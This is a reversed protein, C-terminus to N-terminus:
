EDVIDPTRALLGSLGLLAQVLHELGDLPQTGTAEAATPDRKWTAILAASSRRKPLCSSCVRTADAHRVASTQAGRGLQGELQPGRDRVLADQRGHGRNGAFAEHRFRLAMAGVGIHGQRDGASLRNRLGQDHGPHELQELQLGRVPHEVHAGSGAIVRRQQRQQGSLHERDLAVSLQGLDRFRRDFPQPQLIHREEDAVAPRTQGLVAREVGYVDSRGGSGLQRGREFLLQGLASPEHRGHSVGVLVQRQCPAFRALEPPLPELADAEHRQHRALILFPAAGCPRGQKDLLRRRAGLLAEPGLRSKGVVYWYGGFQKLDQGNQQGAKKDGVYHYLPHGGYTIQKQTGSRTITGVLSQNLGSGPKVTVTGNAMWPVWASACSGTCASKKSSDKSFAYLTLGSKSVVVTGRKVTGTGIVTTTAALAPAAALTGVATILGLGTLVARKTKLM